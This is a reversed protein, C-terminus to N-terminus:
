TSVEVLVMQGANLKALAARGAPTAEWVQCQFKTVRDPVTVPDGNQGDRAPRVYGAEVLELRRPRESNPILGLRRQIQWDALPGVEVLERLIEHRQSGSRTRIARAAAQRTEPAGSGVKGARQAPIDTAFRSLYGQATELEHRVARARSHLEQTTHEVNLVRLLELARDVARAATHLADAM